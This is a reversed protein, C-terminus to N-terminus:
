FLLENLLLSILGSYFLGDTGYKEFCISISFVSLFIFIRMGLSFSFAVLKENSVKTKMYLRLIFIFCILYSIILKFFDYDIM